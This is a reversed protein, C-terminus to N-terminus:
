FGGQNYMMTLGALNSVMNSNAQAGAIRAGAQAAASGQLNSGAQGAYNLGAAGTQAASAQGMQAINQQTNLGMSAMGGLRGYQQDILQSLVQPRYQALAGQTNGGRLGGTASANQLIANEGQQMMAQMQPSQEIGSIAQRQADAGGLGLLAQQQQLAPVGAQAYPQMGLIAENGQEVYPNLIDRMAQNQEALLQNSESASASQANAADSAASSQQNSSYITAGAVAAYGWPM